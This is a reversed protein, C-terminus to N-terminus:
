FVNIRGSRLGLVQVSDEDFQYTLLVHPLDSDEPMTCITWFTVTVQKGDEMRTVSNRHGKEPNRRIIWVLGDYVQQFRPHTGRATQLQRAAKASLSFERPASDSVRVSM